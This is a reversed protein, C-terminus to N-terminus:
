FRWEPPPIPIGSTVFYETRMKRVFTKADPPFNCGDSLSRDRTNRGDLFDECDNGLNVSMFMMRWPDEPDEYRGNVWNRVPVALYLAFFWLCDQLVIRFEDEPDKGLVLNELFDWYSEPLVLSPDDAGSYEDRLFKLVGGLLQERYVTEEGDFFRWMPDKEKRFRELRNNHSEPGPVIALSLPGDTPSKEDSPTPDM